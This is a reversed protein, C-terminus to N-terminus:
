VESRLDCAAALKISVSWSGIKLELTESNAARIPPEPLPETVSLIQIDDNPVEHETAEGFYVRKWKRLQSCSLGCKKAVASASVVDGVTSVAAKRLEDPITARPRHGLRFEEFQTALKDLNAAPSVPQEKPFIAKSQM